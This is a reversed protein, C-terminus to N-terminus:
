KDKEYEEALLFCTEVYRNWLADFGLREFKGRELQLDEGLQIMFEKVAVSRARNGVDVMDSLALEIPTPKKIRRFPLIKM